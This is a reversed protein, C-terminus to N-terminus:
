RNHRMNDISWTFEIWLFAIWAYDHTYILVIIGILLAITNTIFFFIDFEVEHHSRKDNNTLWLLLKKM